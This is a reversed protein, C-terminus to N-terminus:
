SKVFPIPVFFQFDPSPIIQMILSGYKEPPLMCSYKEKVQRDDEWAGAYTLTDFLIKYLNDEDHTRKDPPSFHVIVSCSGKITSFHNAKMQYIIIISVNEKYKKGAPKLYWQKTKSNIGYLQNLSPPFPLSLIM